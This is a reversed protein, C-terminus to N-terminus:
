EAPELLDGMVWLPDVYLGEALLSFHLHPGTVLGTSGVKAIREGQLVNMGERAIIQSCHGYFTQLNPAHRLLIYNGYIESSGVEEVVGPLAALIKRGEEAAVDIGNHFDTNGSIPHVRYAFPSTIPGTVPPKVPAGLFVPALSAGQPAEMQEGRLSMAMGYPVQAVAMGQAELYDFAPPEEQASVPEPEPQKAEGGLVQGLFQEVSTFFSKGLNGLVGFYAGIEGEGDVMSEYDRRFTEYREEDAKKAIFAIILLLLVILIQATLAMAIADIEPEQRRGRASRYRTNDNRAM